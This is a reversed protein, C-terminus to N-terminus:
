GGLKVLAAASTLRRELHRELTQVSFRRLDRARERPWPEDLLAGAPAHFILSALRQSEPSLTGSALRRHHVCVLGDSLAHFYAPAGGLAEGDLAEGCVMCRRLEPLWGMLRTMWLAFYTLPMWVGGTEAAELVSLLLRFVADNPDHDPQTEDIVEAFFALASLRTYDVALSLPSRLIEFYDLRVLEQRPKELFTARVHTMPELAGGFRRRSKAASKAVGKLKGFERTFLAVIQDAERIPWTRLVIAEANM